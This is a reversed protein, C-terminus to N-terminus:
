SCTRTPSKRDRRSQLGRRHHRPRASRHRDVAQAGLGQRRVHDDAPQHRGGTAEGRHGRHRVHRRVLRQHRRHRAASRHPRCAPLAAADAVASLSGADGSQPRAGGGLLRRRHHRDPTPPNYEFRVKGPKQIYFTGETRGGDPGVQVFNGVMTQVSSLYLSIRDLPPASSPTSPPRRRRRRVARTWSRSRSSAPAVARSRQSGAAPRSQGRVAAARRRIEAAAGADAAARERCVGAGFGIGIRLVACVTAALITTARRGAM